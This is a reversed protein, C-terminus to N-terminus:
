EAIILYYNKKGKQAILYKNNILDITSFQQDVSSIKNRNIVTGGGLIMKKAEGKSPFVSTSVALLDVM